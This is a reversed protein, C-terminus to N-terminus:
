SQGLLAKCCRHIFRAENRAPVIVSVLPTEGPPLPTPPVVVDFYHRSHLWHTVVLGALLALTSFILCLVNFLNAEPQIWGAVLIKISGVALVSAQDLFGNMFALSAISIEPNVRFQM